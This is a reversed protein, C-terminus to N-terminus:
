SITKLQEKLEQVCVASKERLEHLEAIMESMRAQAAEEEALRNGLEVWLMDRAVLQADRQAVNVPIRYEVVGPAPVASLPQELLCGGCTVRNWAASSNEVPLGADCPVTRFHVPQLDALSARQMRHLDSTTM